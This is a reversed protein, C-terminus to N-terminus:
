LELIHRRQHVDQFLPHSTGSVLHHSLAQTPHESEPPLSVVVAMSFSLEIKIEIRQIPFESDPILYDYIIFRRGSTMIRDHQPLRWSPRRMTAAAAVFTPAHHRRGGPAAL